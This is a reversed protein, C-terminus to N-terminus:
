DKKRNKKKREIIEMEVKKVRENDMSGHNKKIEYFKQLLKKIEPYFLDIYDPIYTTNM